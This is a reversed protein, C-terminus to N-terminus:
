IFLDEMEEDFEREWKKTFSYIVIGAALALLIGIGLPKM